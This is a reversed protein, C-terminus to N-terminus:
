ACGKKKASFKEGSMTLKRPTSHIQGLWDRYELNSPIM